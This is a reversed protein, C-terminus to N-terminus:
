AVDVAPDLDDVQAGHRSRGANDEMGFVFWLSAGTRGFNSIDELRRTSLANEILSYYNSM